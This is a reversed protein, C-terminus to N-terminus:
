DSSDNNLEEECSKILRDLVKNREKLISIWDYQYSFVNQEQSNLITKYNRYENLHQQLQEKSCTPWTRKFDSMIYNM